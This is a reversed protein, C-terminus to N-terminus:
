TWKEKWPDNHSMFFTSYGRLLKHVKDHMSSYVLKIEFQMSTLHAIYFHPIFHQSSIFVYITM